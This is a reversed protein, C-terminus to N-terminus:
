WDNSPGDPGVCFQKQARCMSCKFSKELKSMQFGSSSLNFASPPFIDGNRNPKMKEIMMMRVKCAECPGGDPGDTCPPRFGSTVQLDGSTIVKSFAKLIDELPNSGKPPVPRGTTLDIQHTEVVALEREYQDIVGQCSMLMSAAAVKMNQNVRPDDLAKRMERVVRYQDEINM